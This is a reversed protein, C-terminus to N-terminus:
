YKNNSMFPFDNLIDSLMNYLIIIYYLYIIIFLIDVINYSRKVISTTM